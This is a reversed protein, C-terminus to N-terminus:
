IASSAGGAAVRRRQDDLVAKLTEDLDIEPAWGLTNRLHAPDGIATQIPAPRLRGPDVRVDIPTRAQGLLRELLDGIRVAQGSAINFVEGPALTSRAGLALTYARVVDRVDLFDRAEDLSGVWLVPPQVGAEIRAIQAAFSPAVFSESQGAGTHNFPRMVTASLGAAAAQRVLIDAAAKSAAYPNMPQLLGRETMPASSKLSAGYVEASSVYLFHADPAHEQLALVLNLTGGLNVEWAHRPAKVSTTVAAVAALHVVIDPRTTAVYTEVAEARTLDLGSRDDTPPAPIDLLWDLCSRALATRLYQGVFGQGGTILVRPGAGSKAM